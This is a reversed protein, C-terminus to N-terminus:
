DRDGLSAFAVGSEAARLAALRKRTGPHTATDQQLGQHRLAAFADEAPRGLALLARLAFADAEFEHRHAQASAARGLQDAVPDTAQPVVDGPVFRKYLAGVQLWHGHQVHGLEHALVFLRVGEPMDALSENAVIVHGDFTEAVVSSGSVIRLEVAKDSAIARRLLEFSGRVVAARQGDHALALADLRRQQSDHLVDIIDNAQVAPAACTAVLITLRLWRM